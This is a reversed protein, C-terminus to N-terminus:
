NKENKWGGGFAKYIAILANAVEGQCSAMSDQRQTLARQMDLVNQFDTLGARYLEDVQQASLRAATVAQEEFQLRQRENVFTSLM